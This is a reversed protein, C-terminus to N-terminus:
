PFNCTAVTGGGQKLRVWTHYPQLLFPGRAREDIVKCNKWALLENKKRLYSFHRAKLQFLIGQSNATSGSIRIKRCFTNCDYGTEGVTPEIQSVSVKGIRAAALPLWHRIWFDAMRNLLGRTVSIKVRRCQVIKCRAVALALKASRQSCVRAPTASNCGRSELARRWQSSFRCHHVHISMSRGTSAAVAVAALCIVSVDLFRGDKSPCCKRTPAM